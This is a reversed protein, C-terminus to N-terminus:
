RWRKRRIIMEAQEVMPIQSPPVVAVSNRYQIIADCVDILVTVEYGHGPDGALPKFVIPNNITEWLKESIRSGIGARSITKIFANGGESKLGLAKAM